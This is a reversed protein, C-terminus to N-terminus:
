RNGAITRIPLPAGAGIAIRFYGHADTKVTTRPAWSNWRWRCAASRGGAPAACCRRGRRAPPRRGVAPELGGPPLVRGILFVRETTGYGRFPQLVIPGQPRRQPPGAPGAARAATRGSQPPLGAAVPTTPRTGTPRSPSPAPADMGAFTPTRRATHLGGSTAPPPPRSNPGAAPRSRSRSGRDGAAAIPGAPKGRCPQM